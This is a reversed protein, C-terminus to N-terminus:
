LLDLLNAILTLGQPTLVSEPHFQVGIIPREHHSIAMVLDNLRADVQLVDPIDIGVLSHYRGVSLPSSLGSFVGHDNHEIMGVKGHVVTGCTVVKGGFYEIICQHGLCVGFIPLDAPAQALLQMCLSADAPAGPGPSMVLLDPQYKDIVALADDISLNARYVQVDCDLRAFEDALKYVFSDYNDIIVIKKRM